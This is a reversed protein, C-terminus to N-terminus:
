RGNAEMLRKDREATLHRRSPSASSGAVSRNRMRASRPAPVMPMPSGAPMRRTLFRYNAACYEATMAFLFALGFCRSRGGQLPSKGTWGKWGHGLRKAGQAFYPGVATGMAERGAVFLDHDQQRWYISLVPAAARAYRTKSCMTAPGRGGQSGSASLGMMLLPPAVGRFLGCVETRRGLRAEGFLINAQCIRQLRAPYEIM